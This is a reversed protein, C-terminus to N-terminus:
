VYDCLLTRSVFMWFARYAITFLHCRSDTNSIVQTHKGPLLLKNRGTM